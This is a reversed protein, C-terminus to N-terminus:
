AIKIIDHEGRKINWTGPSRDHHMAIGPVAELIADGMRQAQIRLTPHVADSSRLEAIYVASPLTCCLRIPVLYGMGIYYQKETADCVLTDIREEQLELFSHAQDRLPLPMQELYWDHFGNNITLLPMDQVCSRQRQLDRYSGFDLPFHFDIAGYGRLRHHLETKPPRNALLAMYPELGGLQLNSEYNFDLSFQDDYYAFCHESERLYEDEEDSRRHLFSSQYKAQLNELVSQAIQQVERLPHNRMGKLHDAAQRLNTHWSVLTAAGAPLFARAIDFARAKIAKQWVHVDQAVQHPFREQLSPVMKELVISYFSRWEEQILQGERTNLPDLFPQTSMDLYRTSAEQGSYLPWDQIAKAALMSVNEIFIATSGCDGISKHGYGVYYTSMFKAPGVKKVHELHETVSRPDRSYLAQLMALAEPPMDDIVYTALPKVLSM